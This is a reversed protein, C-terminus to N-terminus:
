SCWGDPSRDRGKLRVRSQRCWVGRTAHVRSAEHDDRGSPPIAGPRRRRDRLCRYIAGSLRPEPAVVRGAGDCQERVALVADRAIRLGGREHSGPNDRESNFKASHPPLGDYKVAARPIVSM